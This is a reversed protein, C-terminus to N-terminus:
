IGSHFSGAIHDRTAGTYQRLVNVEGRSALVGLFGFILAEKYEITTTDPLHLTTQTHVKTRHILHKNFAGGGTLLVDSLKFQNFCAALQQAVHETFTALMNEPSDTCSSFLPDIYQAVWEAGLSKPANQQYYPLANLQHLLTENLVGSAALAGDEDFAKGCQGALGNLVINVACIDFAMEADQTKLSINSFGGLNLCAEYSSFLLRDGIPVLPAGQGGLAVDATRFDTWCPIGCLAALIAGSGIQTTYGLQPQHFLTHGHSSIFDIDKQNLEHTAIFSNIREALLSAYESDLRQLGEASYLLAQQLRLKNKWENSYATTECALLEYKWRIDKTFRILVIDLGDLSTGSMLGLVMYQKM